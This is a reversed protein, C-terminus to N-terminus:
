PFIVGPVTRSVPLAREGLVLLLVGGMAALPLTFAIRLSNAHASCLGMLWPLVAGGSGCVAFIWGSHRSHGVRALLRAVALPFIPACGLGAIVVAAIGIAPTQPLLLLSIGASASVVGALLVGAESGLRLLLPTAARGLVISLWFASVFLGSEEPDLGVSRHVYTAIWGSVSTEAGVYLFLMLSFLLFVPLTLREGSEPRTKRDGAPIRRRAALTALAAFVALATFSLGLLVMRLAGPGVAAAVFPPCSVAGIGWFLNVRSLLAGREAPRQTGFLLNTATNASGLGIGVLGFAGIVVAYNGLALAALGAAVSAYGFLLCARRFHSALIAGLTSATFQIAFLSGAEFDTLSWRASLIPLIPGLLVTAMGAVAFGLYFPFAAPSELRLEAKRSTM